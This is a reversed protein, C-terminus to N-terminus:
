ESELFNSSTKKLLSSIDAVLHSKLVKLVASGHSDFTLNEDALMSEVLSSQSVINIINDLQADSLREYLSRTISELKLDRGFEKRWRKDYVMLQDTSYSKSTSAEHLTLVAQHAAKLGYYIGGGSLPKNQGCADGIVLARDSCSKRLCELPVKRFNPESLALGVRGSNKLFSYFRSLYIQPASRALLGIKARAGEIPVVWAFFGPAFYSSCFVDIQNADYHLEVEQQGGFVSNRIRGLGVKETLYGLGASLIIAEARYTRERNDEMSRIIVGDPRVEIDTVRQGYHIEAGAQIARRNLFLDFDGRHVTAAQPKSRKVEIYSGNPSFLRGTSYWRQALNHPLKFEDFCQRSILGTCCVPLGPEKKRELTIVKHGLAALGEAALSGSPGAGIVVFEANIFM